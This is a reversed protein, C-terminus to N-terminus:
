GKVSDRHRWIGALISGSINHWVSFIAGPLAAAASFYRVALAVALGSNQMGVEIAITRGTKEDYRFLRTVGYGLALGTLNHAMVAMLIVPSASGINSRNLAVIIAIIFLIVAASLLPFLERVKGIREKFFSNIATGAMVPLLVIVLIDLLMEAAPVPVVHRLLLLTLLPTLVVACVTSALTMTVSLAVDGGALYAIVNSATGGPSCGVLVMGATLAPPLRFLLSLLYAAGPMVLYQLSFGLLIVGPSKFVNRFNQWELTMGMGFMVVALLPIILPKLGALYADLNYAAVSVLLAWLPFLRTFRQM